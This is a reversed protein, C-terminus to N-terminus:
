DYGPVDDSLIGKCTNPMGVPDFRVINCREATCCSAAVRKGRGAAEFDDVNPALRWGHMCMCVGVAVGSGGKGGRALLRALILSERDAHAVHRILERLRERLM